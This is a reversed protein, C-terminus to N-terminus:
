WKGTVAKAGPLGGGFFYMGDNPTGDWAHNGDLDLYWVGNAFVGIQFVGTGLWDGTVPQAGALGTGFFARIDTPEGDWSGNGNMDLYWTGNHFVGIKTTGSGNWDGTVPQAGSLGVGFSYMADTPTGDWQGNGNMDLYWTGNVYVGLSSEGTGTWDGTVPIAGPMGFGFLLIQDIPIPDLIGNGNTDLLWIGDFFEAVQTKGTGLWDGTVPTGSLWNAFALLKDTPEGNWATDGNADLYWSTGTFVGIKTALSANATLDYTISKSVEGNVNASGLKRADVTITYTGASLPPSWTWTRIAANPEGPVIGWDRKISTMGLPTTVSFRYEFANTKTLTADVMGAAQATFTIPAGGILQSVSDATLSVDTAPITVALFRMMDHEEHSLIHCHWVYLGPIDFRARVRTVKGFPCDITDKWGAEWAAPPESVSSVAYSFSPQTIINNVLDTTPPVFSSPDFDRRDVVQFAVLHLHMPHADATTNIINWEETEGLPIIETVPAGIFDMFGRSDITPLTRGLNDVIEMLSVNRTPLTPTLPAIAGLLPRLNTSITPPTIDPVAGNLAIVDFEMVEPIASNPFNPALDGPGSYPSDPGLNQMVIKDGPSLNRFDVLMDLREGPMLDFTDRQVPHALKGQESAIQWVPIISGTSRSVLRLVWTRSDTGGILRMRYFRPEVDFKGYVVGNVMPMNGFYELSGNPAEYPGRLETDTISPDFPILHGDAAKSFPVTPCTSAIVGGDIPDPECSPSNLDRVPQDPMAIAGNLYFTRDQLAFGIEYPNAPLFNDEILEQENDDTIPFFGALGMQTNNHTTGM